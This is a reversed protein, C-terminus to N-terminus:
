YSELCPNLLSQWQLLSLPLIQGSQVQNCVTIVLTVQM